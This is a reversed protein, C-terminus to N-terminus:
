VSQQEKKKALCFEFEKEFYFIGSSCEIKGLNYKKLICELRRKLRAIRDKLEKINKKSKPLKKDDEQYKETWVAKAIQRYNGANGEHMLFQKFFRILLRKGKFEDIIKNEKDVKNTEWEMLVANEKYQDIFDQHVTPIHGRDTWIEYELKEDEKKKSEEKELTPRKEKDMLLADFIPTKVKVSDAIITAGKARVYMMENATKTLGNMNNASDRIPNMLKNQEEETLDEINKINRGKKYENIKAVFDKCRGITEGCKEFKLKELIEEAKDLLTLDVEKLELAKLIVFFYYHKSNVVNQVIPDSKKIDIKELDLLLKRLCMKFFRLSKNLYNRFHRDCAVVNMLIFLNNLLHEEGKRCFNVGKLFDEEANELLGKSLMEMGSALYYQGTYATDLKVAKYFNKKAARYESIALYCLGQSGWRTPDDPKLKIAKDYSEIAEKYKMLESLAIGRLDWTIANEAYKPELEIIKDIFKLAEEPKGCNLFPFICYTLCVWNNDVMWRIEDKKNKVLQKILVKTELVRFLLTHYFESEQKESFVITINRESAQEALTDLLSEQRYIQKLYKKGYEEMTDKSQLKLFPYLQRYWEDVKEKPIGKHWERDVLIWKGDEPVKEDYVCKTKIM